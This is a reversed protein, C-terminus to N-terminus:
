ARTVADLYGVLAEADDVAREAEAVQGHWYEANEPHRTLM